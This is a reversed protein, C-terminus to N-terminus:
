AKTVGRDELRAIIENIKQVATALEANTALTAVKVATGTMAQSKDAKELLDAQLDQDAAQLNTIDEMIDVTYENFNESDVIAVAKGNKMHILDQKSVFYLYAEDDGYTVVNTDKSSMAITRGTETVIKDKIMVVDKFEEPAESVIEIIKAKGAESINTIDINLKETLEAGIEDLNVTLKGDPNIQLLQNDILLEIDHGNVKIPDNGTYAAVQGDEIKVFKAVNPNKTSRIMAYGNGDAPIQTEYGVQFFTESGFQIRKNTDSM